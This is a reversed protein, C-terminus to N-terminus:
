MQLLFALASASYYKNYRYYFICSKIVECGLEIDLEDFNYCTENDLIKIISNNIITENEYIGKGYTINAAENLVQNYKIDTKGYYYIITNKQPLNFTVNEFTTNERIIIEQIRNKHDM